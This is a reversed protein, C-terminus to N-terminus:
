ERADAPPLWVSVTTGRGPASHIDLRGGAAQIRERQSLLGIHAEAVSLSIRNVDFGVGNDEISLVTSDHRETLTITIKTAHSHKAANTLFERAAGLLLAENPHRHPYDVHLDIDFGGRRSAREAIARLAPELGAQDLVHPHLEFIAGRLESLTETLASQARDLDPNSISKAADQIDQRAALLNQIANDHLAEALRRREREEASMVDALLQRRGSALRILRQTRTSLLDSFLTAAAGIWLLYGTQVAVFNAADSLHRAPHSVAQLDYAAVVILSAILTVRWGFRFAVSIPILFYALRADSFAGGSLYALVSIALVDITTAALSLTRTPTGLYAWLLMGIAYVLVLVAVIHFTTRNPNPHPLREAAVILGVAAIRLWAVRREGAAIPNEETM